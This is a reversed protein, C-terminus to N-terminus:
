GAHTALTLGAPARLVTTVTVEASVHLLKPAGVLDPLLAPQTLALKPGPHAHASSPSTLHPDLTDLFLRRFSPPTPDLRM